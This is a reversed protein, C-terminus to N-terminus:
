KFIRNKGIKRLRKIIFNVFIVFNERKKTTAFIKNSQTLRDERHSIDFSQNLRVIYVFKKLFTMKVVLSEM